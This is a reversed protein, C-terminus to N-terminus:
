DDAASEPTLDRRAAEIALIARPADDFEHALLLAVKALLLSEQGPPTADIAANLALFVEEMARAGAQDSNLVTNAPATGSSKNM